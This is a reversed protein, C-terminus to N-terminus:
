YTPSDTQERNTVLSVDFARVHVDHGLQPHRAHRIADLCRSSPPKDTNTCQNGHQHKTDEKYSRQIHTCTQSPHLSGTQHLFIFFCGLTQNDCFTYPTISQHELHFLLIFHLGMPRHFLSATQLVLVCTLGQTHAM